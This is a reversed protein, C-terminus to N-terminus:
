AKFAHNFLDYNNVQRELMLSHITTSAFVVFILIGILLFRL